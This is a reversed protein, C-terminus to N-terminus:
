ARAQDRHLPDLQPRPVHASISGNNIIRGGNPDQAKMMRFAQQTCLFSGTLNTDVVKKWQEYTLGGVSRRPASAPTTSCCTSAASAGEVAAFLARSRHRTPSTPRCRSRRPTAAGGQRDRRAQGARRGALVVAGATGLLALAAAPRHRQRRGHRRRNEETHANREGARHNIPRSSSAGTCMAM